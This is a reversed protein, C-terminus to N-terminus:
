AAKWSREQQSAMQVISLPIKVKRAKGSKHSNANVVFGNDQAIPDSTLELIEGYMFVRCRNAYGLNKLREILVAIESKEFTRMIGRELGSGRM